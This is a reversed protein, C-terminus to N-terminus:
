PAKVEKDMHEPDVVKGEDLKEVKPTEHSIQEAAEMNTKFLEQNQWFMRNDNLQSPKKFGLKSKVTHAVKSVMGRRKEPKAETM